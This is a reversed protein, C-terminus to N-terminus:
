EKSKRLRSLHRRLLKFEADSSLFVYKRKKTRTSAKCKESSSFLSIEVGGSADVLRSVLQNKTPKETTEKLTVDAEPLDCLEKTKVILLSGGNILCIAIEGTAQIALPVLEKDESIFGRM